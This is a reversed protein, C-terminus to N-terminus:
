HISTLRIAKTSSIHNITNLKTAHKNSIGSLVALDKTSLGKSAFISKLTTINGSPPPLNRLADVLNSVNGDRRGTEVEWHAGM